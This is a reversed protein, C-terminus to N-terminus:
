GRRQPRHRPIRKTLPPLEMYGGYTTRLVADWNAPIPLLHGEFETRRGEGFWEPHFTERGAPYSSAFNAIRVAREDREYSRHVADIRAQLYRFPLFKSTLNQLRRQRRTRASM